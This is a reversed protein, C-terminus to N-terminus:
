ARSVHGTHEGFHTSMLRVFEDDGGGVNKCLSRVTLEVAPDDHSHHCRGGRRDVIKTKPHARPFKRTSVEEDARITAAVKTRPSFAGGGREQGGGAARTM